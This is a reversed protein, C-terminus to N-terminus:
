GSLNGYVAPLAVLELGDPLTAYVRAKILLCSGIIDFVKKFGKETWRPCVGGFLIGDLQLKLTM